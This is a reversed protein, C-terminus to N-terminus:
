QDDEEIMALIEEATERVVLHSEEHDALLVRTESTKGPRHRDMHSIWEPNVWVSTVQGVPTLKVFKAAM